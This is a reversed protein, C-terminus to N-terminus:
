TDTDAIQTASDLSPMTDPLAALEEAGFAAVVPLTPAPRALGGPAADASTKGAQPTVATPAPMTARRADMVATVVETTVGAAEVATIKGTQLIVAAASPM